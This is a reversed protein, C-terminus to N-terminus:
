KKGPGFYSCAHRSSDRAVTVRALGPFRPRLRAWIWRAINELSPQRLGPIENLYAHDLKARLRACTKELEGLDTVFGQANTKEGVIAVGVRFSHGHISKYKHRRPMDTFRHAADFVFEQYIEFM